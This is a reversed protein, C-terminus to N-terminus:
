ENCEESHIREDGNLLQVSAMFSFECGPLLIHTLCSREDGAEGVCRDLPVEPKGYNEMINM